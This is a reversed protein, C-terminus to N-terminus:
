GAAAVEEQAAVDAAIAEDTENALAKANVLHLGWSTMATTVLAQVLMLSYLHSEIIGSDKAVSLLMLTMLGRCNMCIGVALSSRWDMAYDGKGGEANKKEADWSSFRAALACAGLKCVTAVVVILVGNLVDSWGMNWTCQMGSRILFITVFFPEIFRGLRRELLHALSEKPEEEDHVALHGHHSRKTVMIDRPIIGGWFMAGILAHMGIFDSAFAFFGLGALYAIYLETTDRRPFLYVVLYRAFFGLALIIISGIIMEAPSHAHSGSHEQLEKPLGLMVLAVAIWAIVDEATAATLCTTAVKTGKLGFPAITLSIAVISTLTLFLGCMASFVWLPVEEPKYAPALQFYGLASGGVIPCIFGAVLVAMMIKFGGNQMKSFDIELGCNAQFLTLGIQSLFVVAISVNDTFPNWGFKKLYILLFTFAIGVVMKGVMPTQGIREAVKGLLISLLCMIALCLYFYPEAHM